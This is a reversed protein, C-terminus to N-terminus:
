QDPTPPYPLPSTRYFNLTMREQYPRLSYSPAVGLWEKIPGDEHGQHLWTFICAQRLSKPTVQIGFKQGFESFIMELGRPSLGGSLIRFPNANFLLESFSPGGAAKVKSLEEQYRLLLRAFTPSLPVTYPDRKRPTVM